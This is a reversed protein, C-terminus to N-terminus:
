EVGLISSIVDLYSLFERVPVQSTSPGGTLAKDATQGPNAPTDKVPSVTFVNHSLSPLPLLQKCQQMIDIPSKGALERQFYGFFM